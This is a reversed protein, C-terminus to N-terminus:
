EICLTTKEFLQSNKVMNLDLPESYEEIFESFEYKRLVDGGSLYDAQNRKYRNCLIVINRNFDIMHNLFKELKGVAIKDQTTVLVTRDCEKLFVLKDSQLDPSLEVVIYDYSNKNRIYSIIQAYMSFNMQYSVPLNKFPPLFDFDENHIENQIIKLANKMNISCQYCFSDGLFGDYKLYYSFDQHPVTSIYMVRKGKQRLRYALSLATLTNGTGGSVSFVGVVKTGLSGMDSSDAILNADIKKVINKVSYYKYIYSTNSEETEEDTLYYIKTKSFAEPHKITMGYPIILVDIKKPINMLRAFILEDTIFEVNAKDNVLEAFKYEITSIYEEDFSVFVINKKVM